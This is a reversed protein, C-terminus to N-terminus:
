IKQRSKKELGEIKREAVARKYSRGLIKGEVLYKGRELNKAVLEIKGGPASRGWRGEEGRAVGSTSTGIKSNNLSFISEALLRGIPFQSTKHHYM